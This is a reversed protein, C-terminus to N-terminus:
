QPGYSAIAIEVDSGLTDPGQACEPDLLVREQAHAVYADVRSGDAATLSVWPDGARLAAAGLQAGGITVVGQRTVTGCSPEAQYGCDFDPTFAIDVDDVDPAAAGRSVMLERRPVAVSGQDDLLQVLLGEVSGSTGAYVGAVEIHDGVAFAFLEPPVCLYWRDGDIGGPDEFGTALTLALCGDVGPEVSQLVWRGLPVPASWDVRLGDSRPACQGDTPLPDETPVFAIPLESDWTGIQEDGPEVSIWGRASPDIGQGAVFGMPPQGDFWLVIAPVVNDIDIRAAYCEREGQDHELVAMNADGRLSWAQGPGFVADTLLGGPDAAVAECDFDVSDAIPRIRVVIDDDSANHLYVDTFVDAFVVDAPPPSTAACFALGAGAATWEASRRLHSATDRRM